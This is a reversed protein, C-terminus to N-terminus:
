TPALASMPENTRGGSSFTSAGSILRATTVPKVVAIFASSAATCAPIPSPAAGASECDARGDPPLRAQVGREGIPDGTDAEAHGIGHRAAKLTHELVVLWRRRACGMLRYGKGCLSIGSIPCHLEHHLRSIGRRKLGLRDSYLCVRRGSHFVRGRWGLM